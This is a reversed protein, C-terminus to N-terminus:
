LYLVYLNLKMYSSNFTNVPLSRDLDPAILLM